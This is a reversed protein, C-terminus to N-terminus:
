SNEGRRRPGVQGGELHTSHTFRVLRSDSWEGGVLTSIVFVHIYVNVGGYAKM